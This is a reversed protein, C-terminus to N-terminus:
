PAIELKNNGGKAMGKGTKLNSATQGSCTERYSKDSPQQHSELATCEELSFLSMINRLSTKRSMFGYFSFVMLFVLAPLEPRLTAGTGVKCRQM